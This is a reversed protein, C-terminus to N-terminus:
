EFAVMGSLEAALGRLATPTALEDARSLTFWPIPLQGHLRQLSERSDQERLARRQLAEVGGRHVASVAALDVSAVQRCEQEEFLPSIVANVVGASFRLALQQQLKANLDLAEGSSAEDGLAVLVLATHAPDQLMSWARQADRLLVGAHAVENIIKPIWLM